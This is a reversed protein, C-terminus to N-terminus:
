GMGFGDSWLLDRRISPPNDKVVQMRMWEYKELAEFWFPSLQPELVSETYLASNMTM